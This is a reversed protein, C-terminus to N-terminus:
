LFTEPVNLEYHALSIKRLNRIAPDDSRWKRYICLFDIAINNSNTADVNRSITSFRHIIPGFFNLHRIETAHVVSILWDWDEHSNLNKDFPLRKALHSKIVIASNPIFNGVLLNTGTVGQTSKEVVAKPSGDPKYDILYYNTFYFDSPSVSSLELFSSLFDAHFEDDDDLFLVWTGTSLAVGVNRSEAPGILSPCTIFSDKHRLTTRAVEMTEADVVDSVLIIEFDTISQNLISRLARLLLIPRLHTTVVISFLPTAM